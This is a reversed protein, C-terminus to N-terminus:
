GKKLVEYFHKETKGAQRLMRSFHGRTRIESNGHSVPVKRTVRGDDDHQVWIEHTRSRALSFGNRQLVTRFENFRPPM